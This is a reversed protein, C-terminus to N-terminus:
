FLHGLLDVDGDPWAQRATAKVMLANTDQATALGLTTHDDIKM